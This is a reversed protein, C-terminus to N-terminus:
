GKAVAVPRVRDLSYCGSIGNLMIVATHGSLVWAQSRTETRVEQGSDRRVIVTTGIEHQANWEDVQRELAFFPPAVPQRQQRRYGGSM